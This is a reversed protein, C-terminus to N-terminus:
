FKQYESDFNDEFIIPQDLDYFKDMEFFSYM